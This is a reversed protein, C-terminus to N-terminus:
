GTAQVGPVPGRSSPIGTIVEVAESRGPPTVSGPQHGTTPKWSCSVRDWRRSVLPTWANCPARSWPDLSHYHDPTTSLPRSVAISSSVILRRTSISSAALSTSPLPHHKDGRSAVLVRQVRSRGSRCLLWCNKSNLSMCLWWVM